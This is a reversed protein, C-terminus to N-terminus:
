LARTIIQNHIDIVQPLLLADRDNNIIYDCKSLKEDENMQNSIIKLVEQESIKNRAMTREIRLQQPASVGIVLDTQENSKSEFLLAAEKIIYPSNQRSVWTKTYAITAPHVLKNLAHLKEPEKFVVGSIFGRNLDNEIYAESGFLQIINKKLEPDERMLKKAVDDAYLVPINLAEFIEAVTSKGSGIGGTLGVSLM